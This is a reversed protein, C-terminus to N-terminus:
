TNTPFQSTPRGKDRRFSNTTGSLLQQSLTLMHVTLM